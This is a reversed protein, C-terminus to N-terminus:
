RKDVQEQFRSAEVFNGRRAAVEMGEKAENLMVRVKGVACQVELSLHMTENQSNSFGESILVMDESKKALGKEVDMEEDVMRLTDPEIGIKNTDEKEEEVDLDKEVEVELEKEVEVELEKEEEVGLNKEMEVEEEVELDVLEARRTRELWMLATNEYIEM